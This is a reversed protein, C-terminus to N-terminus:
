TEEIIEEQIIHLKNWDLKLGIKEQPRLITNSSFTDVTLLQGSAEVSYRVMKGLFVSDVIEGTLDGERVGCLFIREPRVVATLRGTLKKPPLKGKIGLIEVEAVNDCIVYSTVPLMNVAGIFDAVFRSNPEFYIESPSGIQKMEGHDMVAIIDSMALAEEQDHTVYIATMGIKRQIKTLEDRVEVRLKADLNSLPEDLLLIDHEMILARAFAVRQQQGGSLQRPYRKELDTLNFMKIQQMVRKRIEDKKIGQLKLGYGINEEITMHPFLAYDQFVLPTNRMNPPVSNMCKGNIIVDGSDQEYFGAITRLLTTKGCGSPGLLTVFSGKPVSLSVGKLAQFNGFSKVLRNIEIYNETM